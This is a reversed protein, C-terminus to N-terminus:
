KKDFQEIWEDIQKETYKSMIYFGTVIVARIVPIASILLLVILATIINRMTCPRPTYDENDMWGNRIIPYYFENVACFIIIMWLFITSLYIEFM